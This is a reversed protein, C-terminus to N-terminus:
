APKGECLTLRIFAGVSNLRPVSAPNGLNDLSLVPSTDLLVSRCSPVLERKGEPRAGPAESRSSCPPCADGARTEAAFKEALAHARRPASRAGGGKGAPLRAGPAPRRSGPAPLRSGRPLGPRRPHRRPWAAERHRARPATPAPARPAGRPAGRGARRRASSGKRQVRVRLPLQGRDAGESQERRRPRRPGRPAEEGCGHEQLPDAAGRSRRRGPQPSARPRPSACPQRQLPGARAAAPLRAQPDPESEGANSFRRPSSEGGPCKQLCCSPTTPILLLTSEVM